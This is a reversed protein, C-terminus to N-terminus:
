EWNFELASEDDFVRIYDEMTITQPENGNDVTLSIDYSGPEEFVWVANQDYSDTIGDNDFDWAWSIVEPIAWSNDFFIM